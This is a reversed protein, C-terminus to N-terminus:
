SLLSKLRRYGERIDEGAKKLDGWVAEGSKGVSEKVQANRAKLHEWKKELQQWEDRVEAKALSTKVALRERETRLEELLHEWEEKVKAM